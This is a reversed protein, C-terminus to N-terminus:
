RALGTMDSATAPWGTLPTAFNVRFYGRGQHYGWDESRVSYAKSGLLVFANPSSGIFPADPTGRLIDPSPMPKWATQDGAVANWAGAVQRARLTDLGTGALGGHTRVALQVWPEQRVMTAEAALVHPGDALEVGAVFLQFPHDGQLIPRGDLYAQAQANANLAVLARGPAAHFWTLLRAQEAAAAGRDGRLFPDYAAADVPEGLLRRYELARLAYVTNEDADPYREAYERILDICKAFDNMRELEFLQLMMTQRAYRDEVPRRAARDAPVAPAAQPQDLYAFATSQFWAYSVNQDGREISMKLSQNFRIPDVLHHRFQAVRFPSRDMIGHLAAFAASRYYWGGNFYDELGTGHWSPRAEGDVLISEDGELLWWSNDRQTAGQGTVGLFCGAYHGRGAFDAILHPTGAAPGSRRWQAHLYLARPDGLPAPTGRFSAVVPRDCGNVLAISVGGRFPMPWGCRFGSAGHGLLLSGYHRGRWANGFFDGLPVDISAESRGDYRVRLVVDQLMAEREPQTWAAPDAPKVDIWWEHLRGPQDSRFVVTERAAEITQPPTDGWTTEPWEVSRTWAKAAATAAAQDEPTQARPFTEVAENPGLSEINVQYFLRRPGWFPHVPPALAEIRISKQFTLPVYSYWCLNLYRALPPTFPARGGFLEDITGSLRPKKEGDFYIRFPHGPDVGTTWFRRVVGPGTAEALTVWGSESGPARFRNFDDNGGTADFSSILRTGRLDAEALRSVNTLDAVFARWPRADAPVADRRSCAAAGALCAALVIPPICRRM